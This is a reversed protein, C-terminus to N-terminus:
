HTNGLNSQGNIDFRDGGLPMSVGRNLFCWVMNLLYLYYGWFNNEFIKGQEQILQETVAHTVPPLGSITNLDSSSGCFISWIWSGDDEMTAWSISDM